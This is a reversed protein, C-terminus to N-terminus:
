VKVFHLILIFISYFAIYFVIYFTIDGGTVTYICNGSTNVMKNKTKPFGVARVPIAEQVM